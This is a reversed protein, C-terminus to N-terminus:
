QFESLKRGGLRLKTQNSYNQQNRNLQSEQLSDDLVGM